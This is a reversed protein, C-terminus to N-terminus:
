NVCSAHGSACAFQFMKGKINSADYEWQRCCTENAQTADCTTDRTRHSNPRLYVTFSGRTPTACEAHFLAILSDLLLETVAFVVQMVLCFSSFSFSKGHATLKQCGCAPVCSEFTFTHRLHLETTAESTEVFHQDVVCNM